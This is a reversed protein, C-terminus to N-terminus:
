LVEFVVAKLWGSWVSQAGNGNEGYAEGGFYLDRGPFPPSTPAKWSFRGCTAFMSLRCVVTRNRLDGNSHLLM